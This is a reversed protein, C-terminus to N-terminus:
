VSEHEGAVGGRQDADGGRLMRVARKEGRERADRFDHEADDARARDAAEHERLEGAQLHAARHPRPEGREDVVHRRRQGPADVARLDLRGIRAEDRVDDAELRRAADGHEFARIRPHAGGGDRASFLSNM